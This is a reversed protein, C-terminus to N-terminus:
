EMAIFMLKQHSLLVQFGSQHLTGRTSTLVRNFEREVLKAVGFDALKPCFAADLLVNEPRIKWDIAQPNKRFLQSDLSGNPIYDYVLLRNRGQSCFGRLRILNIHQIAGVTSVEVRFQKEGQVLGELKKLAIPM